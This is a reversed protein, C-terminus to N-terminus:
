SVVGRWDEIYTIVDFFHFTPFSCIFVSHDYFHCPYCTISIILLLIVSNALPIYSIPFIPNHFLWFEVLFFLSSCCFKFFVFHIPFIIRPTNLFLSFLFNSFFLASSCNLKLDPFYTLLALKTKKSYYLFQHFNNTLM